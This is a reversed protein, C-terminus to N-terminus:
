TTRPISDSLLIQEFKGPQRKVKVWVEAVERCCKSELDTPMALCQSCLCWDSVGVRDRSTTQEGGDIQIHGDAAQEVDGNDHEEEGSEGSEFEPEFQYPQITLAAIDFLLGEEESDSQSNAAAM